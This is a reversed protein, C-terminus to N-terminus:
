AAPKGVFGNAMLILILNLYSPSRYSRLLILLLDLTKVCYMLSDCYVSSLAIKLSEARPRFSKSVAYVVFHRFLHAEGDVDYFGLGHVM